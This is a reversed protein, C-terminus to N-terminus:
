LEGEHGIHSREDQNGAVVGPGNERSVTALRGPARFDPTPSRRRSSPRSAPTSRVNSDLFASEADDAQRHIGALARRHEMPQPFRDGGSEGVHQRHIGVALMRRCTGANMSDGGGMRLRRNESPRHEVGGRGCQPDFPRFIELKQAFRSVRPQPMSSESKPM